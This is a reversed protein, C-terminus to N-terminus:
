YAVARIREIKRLAPSSGSGTPGGAQLQGLLASRASASIGARTRRPTDVTGATAARAARAPPRGTRADGAGEGREVLLARHQLAEHGLRRSLLSASQARASRTRISEPEAQQPIGPAPGSTSRPHLRRRRLRASRLGPAPWAQPFSAAHSGPFDWGRRGSTVSSAAQVCRRGISLKLRGAPPSGPSWWGVSAFNQCEARAHWWATLQGRSGRYGPLLWPGGPWMRGAVVLLARRQVTPIARAARSAYAAAHDGPYGQGAGGGDAAGSRWCRCWRSRCRPRLPAPRRGPTAARGRGALDARSSAVRFAGVRRAGGDGGARGVRGARAAGPRFRRRPSRGPPGATRELQCPRGPRGPEGPMGPQRPGGARGGRAAAEDAAPDDPKKRRRPTSPWNEKRVAVPM